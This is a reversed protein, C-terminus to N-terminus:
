RRGEVLRCLGGSGTLARLLGILLPVHSFHRQGGSTQGPSSFDVELPPDSFDSFGAVNRTSARLLYVGHRTLNRLVYPGGDARYELDVTEALTWTWNSRAFDERAVFQVRFGTADMETVNRPWQEEPLSLHLRLASGDEDSDDTQLLTLTPTDPKLGPRLTFVREVSGISNVARCQFQGFVSANTVLVQPPLPHTPAPPAPSVYRSRLSGTSLPWDAATGPGRSTPQQSQASTARSPPRATSCRLCPTRATWSSPNTQPRCLPHTPRATALRSKRQVKLRIRQEKSKVLTASIQYGKCVYEGADSLSVNRLRLGAGTAEYKRSSVAPPPPPPLQDATRSQSLCPLSPANGNVPVGHFYWSIRPVPDGEAQCRILTGKHEQAVQLPPTDM